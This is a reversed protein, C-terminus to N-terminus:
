NDLAGAEIRQRIAAVEAASMPIPNDMADVPMKNDRCETYLKSESLM